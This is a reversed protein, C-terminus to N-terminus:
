DFGIRYDEVAKYWYLEMDGHHVSYVKTIYMFDSHPVQGINKILKM